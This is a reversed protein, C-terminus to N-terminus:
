RKKGGAKKKAPAAKVSAKAKKPAAAKTPSAKRSPEFRCTGAAPSIMSETGDIWRVKMLSGVIGLLSGERRTAGVKSGDIIVRDGVKPM